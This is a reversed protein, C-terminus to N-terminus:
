DTWKFYRMSIITSIILIGVLIAIDVLADTTFLTGNWGDRLVNVVYTLPVIHSVNQLIEPFAEIPITAGSLFMMPYMAILAIGLATNMRKALSSVIFGISFFTVSCFTLALFFQLAHGTLDTSFGFKAILLIEIAGIYIAFFGKIITATFIARQNLPTGKLRKYVGKERDIVVQLGMSFFATTFIIIAIMSPIYAQFYDLGGKYSTGKFMIAFVVFSVAPVIFTFLLALTERFFLKMEMKTHTLISQM